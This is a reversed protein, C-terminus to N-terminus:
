NHCINWYGQVVSGPLLSKLDTTRLKRSAVTLVCFNLLISGEPSGLKWKFLFPSTQFDASGRDM